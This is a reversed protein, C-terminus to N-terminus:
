KMVKHSTPVDSINGEDDYYIYEVKKAAAKKTTAIEEQLRNKKRKFILGLGSLFILASIVVAIALNFYLKDTILEQGAIEHLYQNGKIQMNGRYFYYLVLVIGFISVTIKNGKETRPATFYIVIWPFVLSIFKWLYNFDPTVFLAISAIDFVFYLVILTVNIGLLIKQKVTPFYNNM